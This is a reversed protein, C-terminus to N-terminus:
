STKENFFETALKFAKVIEDKVSEDGRSTWGHNMSPFPISKGGKEVLKDVVDSGPKITDDDDGAPMLFFPMKCKGLMEAEDRQFLFSEIKTSPHPSVACKWEVGESASKAIAWGGWCFGLASVNDKEVGKSALFDFSAQIEDSIKEYPYKGLFEILDPTIDITDGYYCDIVLVKYGEAAFTDAIVRVRNTIGWRNDDFITILYSFYM